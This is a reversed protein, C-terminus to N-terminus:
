ASLRKRMQKISEGQESRTSESRESCTSEGRDSCTQEIPQSIKLEDNTMTKLFNGKGKGM